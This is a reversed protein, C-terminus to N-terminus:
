NKYYRDSKPKLIITAKYFSNPLTGVAGIKPFPKPLIPILVKKYPKYFEGTFDDPVTSNDTSLNKVLSKLKM